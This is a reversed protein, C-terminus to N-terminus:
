RTREEFNRLVQADEEVEEEESTPGVDTPDIPAGLDRVRRIEKFFRWGHDSGSAAHAMEHILVAELRGIYDEGVRPGEPGELLDPHILILKLSYDCFGAAELGDAAGEYGDLSMDQDLSLRWGSKRLRGDFFRRDFDEFLLRVDNESTM